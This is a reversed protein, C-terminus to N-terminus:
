LAPANKYSPCPPSAGKFFGLELDENQAKFVAGLATVARGKQRGQIGREDCAFSKMTNTYNAPTPGSRGHILEGWKEERELTRKSNKFQGCKALFYIVLLL